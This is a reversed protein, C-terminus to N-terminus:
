VERELEDFVEDVSRGLGIRPQALALEISTVVDLQEDGNKRAANEEVENPEFNGSEM